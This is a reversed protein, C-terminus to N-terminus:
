TLGRLYSLMEMCDESGPASEGSFRRPCELNQMELIQTVAAPLLIKPYFDRTLGNILKLTEFGDFWGHMQREYTRRDKVNARIRPQITLFGRAALFESLGPHIEKAKGLIEDATDEFSEKMLAIWSRLVVFIRPDYLLFDSRAGSVMKAVAAGTGFPVRASARGSPYVRTERIRRLPGAKALKNLFYFDEGAERRNMGRVSLYGEDTTAMTSGISHFAYPSCAFQLGLVWYRLFIEYRCIATQGALDPPMQHEYDLIGAQARGSAFASRVGSLYDPRVLTDADLSLILRPKQESTALLRLAADMGIKRAMGVGGARDPIELGPSTADIFGLRLPSAAVAQWAERLKGDAKPIDFSQRRVLANLMALTQANNEKDEAPSAAKNNVVCLVMTKELMAEPNAAVSALTCFLSDREAYAPIVVIQECARSDAAQLRWPLGAAYRNLYNEFLSDKKVPFRSEPKIPDNRLARPQIRKLVVNEYRPERAGSLRRRSDM